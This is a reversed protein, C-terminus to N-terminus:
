GIIPPPRSFLQHSVGEETKIFPPSYSISQFDDLVVVMYDYFWLQHAKQDQNNSVTHNKIRVNGGYVFITHQPIQTRTSQYAIAITVKESEQQYRNVAFFTINALYFIAVVAYVILSPASVLFMIVRHFM